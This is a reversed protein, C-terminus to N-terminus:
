GVVPLEDLDVLLEGLEGARWREVDGEALARLLRERELRQALGNQLECAAPDVDRAELTETLHVGVLQTLGRHVRRRARQLLHRDLVGRRRVSEERHQHAVHDLRPPLEDFLVRASDRVEVDSSSSLSMAVSTM